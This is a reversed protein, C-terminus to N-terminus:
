SGTNGAGGTGGGQLPLRSSSSTLNGSRTLNDSSSLNSSSSSVNAEVGASSRTDVLTMNGRSSSSGPVELSGSSSSIGSVGRRDSSSSSGPTRIHGRSRSGPDEMGIGGSNSQFGGGVALARPDVWPAVAASMVAAAVRRKELAKTKRNTYSTRVIKGMESRTIGPRLFSTRQGADYYESPLRHTLLHTVECDSQHICLASLANPKEEARAFILKPDEDGQMAITEYEKELHGREADGQLHYWAMVAKWVGEVSGAAHMREGVPKGQMSEMLFEWAEECKEIKQQGHRCVSRDREEM